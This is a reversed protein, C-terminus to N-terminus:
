KYHQKTVVRRVREYPCSLLEAIKSVKYGEHYLSKLMTIELDSFKARPNKSGNIDPRIYLGTTVAHALNQKATIWELNTSNNNRKNGDKHNVQLSSNSKDCFADAVLKHIFYTIGSPYLTVREYGNRSLRHSKIHQTQINRVKGEDSVEYYQEYQIQKWM